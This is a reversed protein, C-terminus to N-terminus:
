PPITNQNFQITGYHQNNIHNVAYRTSINIKPRFTPTTDSENSWVEKDISYYPMYIYGTSFIPFHFRKLYKKDLFVDVDFEILLEPEIFDEDTEAEYNYIDIDM